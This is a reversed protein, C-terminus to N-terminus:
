ASKNLSKKNWDVLPVRRTIEEHIKCWILYHSGSKFGLKKMMEKRDWQKKQCEACAAWQVVEGHSHKTAGADLIAKKIKKVNKPDKIHPPFSLLVEDTKSARQFQSIDPKDSM